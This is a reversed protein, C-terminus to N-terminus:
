HAAMTGVIVISVCPLSRSTIIDEIRQTRRHSALISSM